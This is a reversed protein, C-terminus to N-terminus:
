EVFLDVFKIDTRSATEYKTPDAFMDLLPSNEVFENYNTLIKHSLIEHLVVQLMDPHTARSLVDLYNITYIQPPMVIPGIVRVAFKYELSTMALKIVEVQIVNEKM